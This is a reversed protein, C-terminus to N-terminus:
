VFRATGAVSSVFNIVTQNISTHTIQGEMELGGVTFISVSPNFGLNHNVTWTTSASSQTHNYGAAGDIGDTGAPGQVGVTVVNVSQEAVVTVSSTNTEVIDFSRETVVTVSESDISVVNAADDSSVVIAESGIEVTNVVSNETVLTETM